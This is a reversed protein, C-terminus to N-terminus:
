NQNIIIKNVITHVRLVASGLCVISAAAFVLNDSISRRPADESQAKRIFRLM